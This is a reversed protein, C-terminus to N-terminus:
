LLSIVTIVVYLGGLGVNCLDIIPQTPFVVPVSSVRSGLDQVM